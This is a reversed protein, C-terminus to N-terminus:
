RNLKGQGWTGSLVNKKISFLTKKKYLVNQNCEGKGKDERNRGMEGEM